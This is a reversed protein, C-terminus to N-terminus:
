VSVGFVAKILVGVGFSIAAVGLSIILMQLFQRRFPKNRAVSIYYNFLYIIIVAITLSVLLAYIPIPLLFFPVVLLIVTILYAGGTFLSATLSDKRGETKKALYESAGMSLSAAFGTIVGSFAILTNNQFAMTFGALAGTLEVLADNLGLVISGVYDLRKEDIMRYLKQEHTQEEDLISKLSPYHKIIEEYRKQDGQEGRELKKITFTLGFFRIFFAYLVVIFPNPKCHRKTIARLKNYHRKEDRSLRKLVSANTTNKERSAMMAYITHATIEAKQQKFLLKDIM